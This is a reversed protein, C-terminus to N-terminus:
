PSPSGPDTAALSPRHQFYQWWRALRPYGAVLAAAEPAAIFYAFMAGLHFDALSVHEGALFEAPAALDELARLVKVSAALGKAVENEDSPQGAAPRFVRHSFVQRVLPWYGYADVAGIIQDMRALARPDAPQLAPGPFARDIYRTIAATEYVAFGDHVLAPVRGFPHLALYSAPVDPAFPNVEVREYPVGKEALVLRVIRLYVSYRYGHLVLAM